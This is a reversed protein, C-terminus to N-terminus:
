HNFLKGGEKEMEEQANISKNLDFCNLKGRRVHGAAQFGLPAPFVSHSKLPLISPLTSPSLSFFFCEPAMEESLIVHSAQSAFHKPVNQGHWQLPTCTGVAWWHVLHKLCSDFALVPDLYHLFPDWEFCAKSILSTIELTQSIVSNPQFHMCGMVTGHKTAEGAVRRVTLTHADASTGKLFCKM